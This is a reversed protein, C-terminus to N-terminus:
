FKKLMFYENGGIEKHLFKFGGDGKEQLVLGIQVDCIYDYTGSICGM